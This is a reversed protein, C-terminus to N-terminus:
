NKKLIFQTQVGLSLCEITLNHEDLEIIDVIIKDSNYEFILRKYKELDWIGHVRKNDPKSTGGLHYYLAYENNDRLEFASCYLSGLLFGPETVLTQGTELNTQQYAEWNGILDTERIKIIISPDKHCSCLYLISLLIGLHLIKM